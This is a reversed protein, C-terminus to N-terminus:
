RWDIAGRGHAVLYENARAFHNNGFFGRHASLPSPHASELILHKTSDILHAKKRAYSGWLLFVVHEAADSVGKIVADTFQHWGYEAHSNALGSEVSLSANLLLVGQEAFRTLDPDNATAFGERRLEKFINALSPPVRAGARASFALGDAVGPTHYPDQGLIVVRVDAPAIMFARALDARNPLATGARYAREVKEQLALFYPKEFESSLLSTWEPGLTLPATSPRSTDSSGSTRVNKRPAISLM